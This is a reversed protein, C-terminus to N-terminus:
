EFLNIYYVLHYLLQTAQNPNSSTLKINKNAVVTPQSVLAIASIALTVNLLKKGYINDAKVGVWIDSLHSFSYASSDIIGHLSLSKVPLM